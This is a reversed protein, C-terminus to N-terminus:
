LLGGRQARPAGAKRQPALRIRKGTASISGMKSFSPPHDHPRIQKPGGVSQSSTGPVDARVEVASPAPPM